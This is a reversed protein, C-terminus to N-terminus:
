LFKQTHCRVTKHYEKNEDNNYIYDHQYSTSKNEYNNQNYTNGDAYSPIHYTPEPKINMENFELTPVETNDLFLKTKVADYELKPIMSKVLKEDRTPLNGAKLLRYALM